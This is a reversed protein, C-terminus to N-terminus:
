LMVLDSNSFPTLQWPATVHFLLSPVHLPMGKHNSHPQTSSPLCCPEPAKLSLRAAEPYVTLSIALSLKLLLKLLWTTARFSLMIIALKSFPLGNDASLYGSLSTPVPRELPWITDLIAWICNIKGVGVGVTDGVGVSVTGDVGVKDGVGVSVTGGIGVTDGVGVVDGVAVADGVGVGVICM